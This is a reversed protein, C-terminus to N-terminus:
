ATGESIRSERLLLGKGKESPLPNQAGAGLLGKVFSHLNDELRKKKTDRWNKRYSASWRWFTEHITLCLDGSPMPESDFRNHGFRYYGDLNHDKPEKHVTM